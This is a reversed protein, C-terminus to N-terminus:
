AQLVELWETIQQLREAPHDLALLHTKQDLSFPLLYALQYALAQQSRGIPPLGLGSALPHELLAAHLTELEDHAVVLNDDEAEARWQVQALVLGDAAVEVDSVQARRGGLVRIGLLGNDRQQFDVIQAECGLASFRLDGTGSEPGKELAVVVFGEGAKFCRSVMDLYRAEFLQLDLTCGPLLVTKLPFLATKESM